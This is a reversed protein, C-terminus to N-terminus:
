KLNDLFDIKKILLRSNEGRTVADISLNILYSNTKAFVEENGITIIENKDDNYNYIEVQSNYKVIVYSMPSLEYKKDGITIITSELFFYLDSGDYLFCNQLDKKLSGDNLIFEKYKNKTITSYNNIKYQSINSLPYIAAMKKPFLVKNVNEYYLPTSDLEVTVNKFTLKTINDKEDLHITGNYEQKYGFSYQYFSYDKITIKSLDRKFNYVVIIVTVITILAIYAILRFRHISFWSKFKKLLM